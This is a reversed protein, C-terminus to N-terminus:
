KNNVAKRLEGSWKFVVVRRAELMLSDGTQPNRGRRASKYKINFKGFGSLLVDKGNELSAKISKLFFEVAARSQVRSLGPHSAYVQNILDAKTVSM